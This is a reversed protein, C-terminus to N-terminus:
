FGEAYIEPYAGSFKTELFTGSRDAYFTTPLVSYPFVMTFEKPVLIVPYSKLLLITNSRRFDILASSSRSLIGPKEAKKISQWVITRDCPLSSITHVERRLIKYVAHRDDTEETTSRSVTFNM